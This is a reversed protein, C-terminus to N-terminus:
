FEVKPTEAAGQTAQFYAKTEFTDGFLNAFMVTPFSERTSNFARAAENFRMREVTIRNETGELQSQLALFNENARLQPYAEAVALLRTLASSLQDQAAQYRAMLEPDELADGVNIQGVSARAETVAQLTEREHAAAGRVTSVLNPVLDARRQYTNEVQAWQSEVAQDLRILRNYTSAFMGGIVLIVFAVIALGILTNRQM